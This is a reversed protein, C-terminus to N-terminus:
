NIAQVVGDKYLNFHALKGPAIEGVYEIGLIQAPLTSSCYSAYEVTAGFNNILNEFARNMTLTSGALSGNSTLRAVGDKVEVDLGGITYAGDEGGAASM